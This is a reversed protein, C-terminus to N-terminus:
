RNRETAGKTCLASREQKAPIRLRTLFAEKESTHLCRALPAPNPTRERNIPFWDIKLAITFEAWGRTM